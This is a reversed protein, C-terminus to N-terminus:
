GDASPLSGVHLHFSNNNSGRTAKTGPHLFGNLGEIPHRPDEGGGDVAVVLDHVVLEDDVM